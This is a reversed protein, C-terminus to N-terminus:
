MDPFLHQHLQRIRHSLFVYAPRYLKLVHINPIRVLIDFNIKAERSEAHKRSPILEQPFSAAREEEM